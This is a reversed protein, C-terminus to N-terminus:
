RLCFMWFVICEYFWTTLSILNENGMSCILHISTAMLFMRTLSFTLFKTKKVNSEIFWLRKNPSFFRTERSVLCSSKLPNVTDKYRCLVPIKISSSRCLFYQYRHYSIALSPFSNQAIIYFSFQTHMCTVAKTFNWRAFKEGLQINLLQNM